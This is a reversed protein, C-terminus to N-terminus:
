IIRSLFSPVILYSRTSKADARIAHLLFHAAFIACTFSFISHWFVIKAYPPHLPRITARHWFSGSTCFFLSAKGLEIHLVWCEINPIHPITGTSPGGLLAFIIAANFWFLWSYVFCYYLYFHIKCHSDSYCIDSYRNAVKSSPTLLLNKPFFRM